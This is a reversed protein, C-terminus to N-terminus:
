PLWFLLDLACIVTNKLKDNTKCLKVIAGLFLYISIVIIIPAMIKTDNLLSVSAIFLIVSFVTLICYLMKNKNKM